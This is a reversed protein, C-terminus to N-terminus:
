SKLLEPYVLHAQRWVAEQCYYMLIFHMVLQLYQNQHSHGISCYQELKMLPVGMRSMISNASLYSQM